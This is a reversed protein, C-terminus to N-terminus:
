LKGDCKEKYMLVTEHSGPQERVMATKLLEIVDTCGRDAALSIANKGTTVFAGSLDAGANLLAQVMRPDGCSAALMLATGGDKARANVNAGHKLLINVTDHHMNIVAFMLASRGEDDKANVDAGRLLLRKVTDIDGELAACMLATHGKTELEPINAKTRM